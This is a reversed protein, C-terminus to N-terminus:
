FLRWVLPGFIVVAAFALSGVVLATEFPHKM